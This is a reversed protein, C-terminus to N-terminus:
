AWAATRRDVINQLKEAITEALSDADDYQAGDINININWVNGSDDREKVADRIMNMLTNAGSVVESGAEGGGLFKGNAAGFITANDLLMPSNMAKRYWDISVSPIKPPWTLLDLTGTVKFHPMKPKPFKWDFDFLDKIKQIKDDLWTKVSNIPTMIKEKISNWKDGVNKKLTEFASTINDKIETAKAKVKDWASVINDKATIIKSKLNDWAGVISYKSDKIKDWLEGAKTKINEWAEVIKDKAEIIWNKIKAWADSIFDRFQENNDYLNKLLTILAVIALIAAGVPHAAVLSMTTTIVTGFGEIAKGAKEMTDKILMVTKFIAIAEVVSEIITELNEFVFALAPYKEALQDGLNDIMGIVQDKAGSLIGPLEKVLSSFVLWGAGILMPAYTTIDTIITQIIELATAMITPLNEAIGQIIVVLLNAGQQLLWPVYMGLDTIITNIISLATDLLTPLNNIIGTVFESLVQSGSLLLGPLYASINNVIQQIMDAGVLLANPINTLIASAFTGILGIASNIIQPLEEVLSSVITSIIEPGVQTLVALLGPLANMLGGILNTASVLLTPLIQEVLQGIYPTIGSILREIGTAINPLIKLLNGAFTQMSSIFQSLLANFDQSPDALGVLLNSWAAGMASASGSITESAEKATTGTIDLNKQVAHIAKVINGFSKDGKKVSKDLKSADDILREM